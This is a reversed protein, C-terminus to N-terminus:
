PGCNLVGTKCGQDCFMEQYMSRLFADQQALFAWNITHYQSLNLSVRFVHFLLSEGEKM